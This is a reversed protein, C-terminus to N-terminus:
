GLQLNKALMLLGELSRNRRALKVALDITDSPVSQTINPNLLQSGYPCVATAWFPLCDAPDEVEVPAVNLGAFRRLTCAM